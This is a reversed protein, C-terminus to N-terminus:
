EGVNIIEFYPFTEVKVSNPCGIEGSFIRVYGEFIRLKDPDYMRAGPPPQWRVDAVIKAGTADVFNTRRDLGVYGPCLPLTAAILGYGQIRVFRDRFAEPNGLIDSVSVLALTLTETPQPQSPMATAIETTAPVLTHTETPHPPSPVATVMETPRPTMRVSPLTCRVLVFCAIAAVLLCVSANKM